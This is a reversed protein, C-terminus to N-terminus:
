LSWVNKEMTKDMNDFQCYMKKNTRTHNILYFIKPFNIFSSKESYLINILESFTGHIQFKLFGVILLPHAFSRVFQHYADWIMQDTAIRAQFVPMIYIFLNNYKTTLPHPLASHGGHM